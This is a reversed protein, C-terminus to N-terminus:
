FSLDVSNEKVTFQAHYCILAMARVSKNGNVTPPSGGNFRLDVVIDKGSETDVGSEVQSGLLKEGDYVCVFYKSLFTQLM